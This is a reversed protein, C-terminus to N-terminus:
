EFRLLIKLIYLPGGVLPDPEQFHPSRREGFPTAWSSFAGLRHRFPWTPSFLRPECERLLLGAMTLPWTAMGLLIGM